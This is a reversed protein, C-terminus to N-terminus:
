LHDVNIGAERFAERAIDRTSRVGSVAVNQRPVVGRADSANPGPQRAPNPAQQQTPANQVPAHQQRTQEDLPSYLDLGNRLAYNELRLAAEALTMQPAADLIRMLTPTQHEIWPHSEAVESIEADAQQQAATLSQAAQRDQVLPAVAGNIMRQIAAVDTGSGIGDITYGAAQAETLLNKIAAVPDQRYHAIFRFANTADAPTLRLENMLANSERYADVQSRLQVLEGEYQQVARQARELQTGVNRAVEFLQRERGARAVINGNADILNGAEDAPYRGRPPQPPQRGQQANPQQAGPQQQGSHQQGSRTSDPRQSQGSATQTQAAQGDAPQQTTTTSSQPEQENGEAGTLTDNRDTDAESELGLMSDIQRDINDFDPM